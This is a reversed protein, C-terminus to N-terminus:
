RQSTMRDLYSRINARRRPPRAQILHRGGEAKARRAEASRRLRPPPQNSGAYQLEVLSEITYSKRYVPHWQPVLGRAEAFLLFLIRYVVTLADSFAADLAAARRRRGTVFGSVLRELAQEVGVQLSRGVIGRHRDSADVADELGPLGAAAGPALLGALAAMSPEDIALREVDVDTLRRSHVRTLDVIRLLPGNLGIWWRIHSCRPITVSVARARALDGGWGTAALVAADHRNAVLMAIMEPGGDRMLQIEFGLATFLPHALLDFVGRAGSAPGLHALGDRLVRCLHSPRSDPRATVRRLVDLSVLTGSFANM